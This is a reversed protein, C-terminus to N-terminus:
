LARVQFFGSIKRLKAASKPFAMLGSFEVTLLPWQAPTGVNIEHENIMSFRALFNLIALQFCDIYSRETVSHRRVLERIAEEGEVKSPITYPTDFLKKAMTKGKDTHLNELLRQQEESYASPNEFGEPQLKKFRGLASTYPDKYPLELVPTLQGPVHRICCPVATEVVEAICSGEVWRSSSDML